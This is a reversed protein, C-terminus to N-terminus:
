SKQPQIEEKLEKLKTEMENTDKLVAKYTGRLKNEAKNLWMWRRDILNQLADIECQLVYQTKVHKDIVEM